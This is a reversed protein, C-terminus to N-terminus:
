TWGLCVYDCVIERFSWSLLFSTLEPIQSVSRIKNMKLKHNGRRSEPRSSFARKRDQRMGWAEATAELKNLRM